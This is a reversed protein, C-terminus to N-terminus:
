TSVPTDRGINRLRMGCSLDARVSADGVDIGLLIESSPAWMCLEEDSKLANMPVSAYRNRFAMSISRISVSLREGNFSADFPYEWRTPQAGDITPICAVGATPRRFREGGRLKGSCLVLEVQGFSAVVSRNKQIEIESETGSFLLRAVIEGDPASIESSVQPSVIRVLRSDTPQVEADDIDFRYGETGMPVVCLVNGGPGWHAHECEMYPPAGTLEGKFNAQPSIEHRVRQIKEANERNMPVLRGVLQVVRGDPLSAEWIRAAGAFETPPNMGAVGFMLNLLLVAGDPVDFLLAEEKGKMELFEIPPLSSDKDILFRIEIAHMWGNSLLTPPFFAQKKMEGLRMHIQGSKHVSIKTHHGGIRSAAYVEGGSTWFKWFFAAPVGNRQPGVRM